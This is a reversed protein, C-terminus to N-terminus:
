RRAGDLHENANSINGDAIYRKEFAKLSWTNFGVEDCQKEGINDIQQRYFWLSLCSKLNNKTQQDYM